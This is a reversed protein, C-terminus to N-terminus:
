PTYSIGLIVLCILQTFSMTNQNRRNSNAPCCVGVNTQDRPDKQTLLAPNPPIMEWTSSVAASEAYSYKDAKEDGDAHIPIVLFGRSM